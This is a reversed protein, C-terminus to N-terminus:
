SHPVCLAGNYTRLLSVEVQGMVPHWRYTFGCPTDCDICLLFPFSILLFCQFCDCEFGEIKGRTWAVPGETMEVGIVTTANCVDCDSVTDVVRSLGIGPRHRSVVSHDEKKGLIQSMSQFLELRIRGSFSVSFLIWVSPENLEM